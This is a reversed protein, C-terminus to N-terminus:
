FNKAGGAAVAGPPKAFKRCTAACGRLQTDVKLIHNVLWHEVLLKLESVMTPSPGREEFTRLLQGFDTLFKQHAQQNCKSAPCKREAM